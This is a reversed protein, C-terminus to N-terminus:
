WSPAGGSAGGTPPAARLRLLVLDGFVAETVYRESLLRALGEIRLLPDVPAGFARVMSPSYVFYAPPAEAFAEVFADLLPGERLKPGGGVDFASNTNFTTLVGMPKYIPTPARRHAWFYVPWATWGWAQVTDAPRTRAAIHAGAAQAATRGDELRRPLAEHHHRGLFLVATSEGACALAVFALVVGAAARRTRGCARDRATEVLRAVGRLCPGSAALLALGPVYQVLYHLYFRAGGMAAGAIGAVVVWLAFGAGTPAGPRRTAVWPALVAAVLLAVVSPFTEVLQAAARLPWDTPASASAVYARGLSVPVIGGILAGIEGRVAYPAAMASFAALGGAVAFLGCRARPGNTRWFAWAAPLVLTAASQKCM